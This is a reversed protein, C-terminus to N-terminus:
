CASVEVPWLDGLGVKAAVTRFNVHVKWMANGSGPLSITFSM